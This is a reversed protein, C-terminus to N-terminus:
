LPVNRGGVAHAIRFRAPRPKLERIIDRIFILSVTSLPAWPWRAARILRVLDQASASVWALVALFLM